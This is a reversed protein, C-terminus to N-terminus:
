LDLHLSQLDNLCLGFGKSCVFVCVSCLPSRRILKENVSNVVKEFTYDDTRPDTANNYKQRILM